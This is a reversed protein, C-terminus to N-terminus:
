LLAATMAEAVFRGYRDASWGRRFMLLACLEPSSYTWMIDAASAADVGARLHGNDRLRRANGTMRTLREADLEELLQQAEPDTAAAARVLLLLPTARPAIEATFAGWGEVIRRPDREREQLDDSRQEAAVPGVGELASTWVARVLGAKGGFSKYITHVSVGADAAVATLTTAAYGVQLFRQEAAAVITAQRHAAASRRRSGDYARRPKVVSGGTSM